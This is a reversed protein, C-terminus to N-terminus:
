KYKDFDKVFTLHFGATFFTNRYTFPSAGGPISLGGQLQFKLQEYGVRVTVSPEFFLVNEDVKTKGGNIREMFHRVYSFRPTFAADVWPGSIGISPQLFIKNYLSRHNAPNGTNGGGYGALVEARWFKNLRTYYGTGFEGYLYRYIVNTSFSGGSSISYSSGSGMLAWHYYPSYALQAGYGTTGVSMGVQLEDGESMLPVNPAETGPM